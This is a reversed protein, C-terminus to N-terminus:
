HSQGLSFLEWIILNLLGNESKLLHEKENLGLNILSVGNVQIEDSEYLTSKFLSACM